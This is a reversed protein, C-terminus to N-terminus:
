AYIPFRAKFRYALLENNEGLHKKTNEPILSQFIKDMDMYQQMKKDFQCFCFGGSSVSWAAIITL